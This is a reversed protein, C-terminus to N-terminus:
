KNIKSNDWTKYWITQPNWKQTAITIYHRQSGGSIDTWKFAGTVQLWQCSWLLCHSRATARPSGSLGYDSGRPWTGESLGCSPHASPLPIWPSSLSNPNFSPGTASSHKHTHKHTHASKRANPPKQKWNTGSVEDGRNLGARGRVVTWSDNIYSLSFLNLKIQPEIFLEVNDM